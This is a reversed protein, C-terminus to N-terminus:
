KSDTPRRRSPSCDSDTQRLYKGRASHRNRSKVCRGRYEMPTQSFLQPLPIRRFLREFFDAVFADQPFSARFFSRCLCGASFTSSFIQPWPMRRFLHEFFATAFADQSMTSNRLTGCRHRKPMRATHCYREAIMSWPIRADKRGGKWVPDNRHKTVTM